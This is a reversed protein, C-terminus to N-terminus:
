ARADVQVAVKAPSPKGKTGKGTVKPARQFTANWAAVDQVGGEDKLEAAIVSRLTEDGAEWVAALIKAGHSDVLAACQGQLGSQWLEARFAAAAEDNCGGGQAMRRLARSAFFNNVLPDQKAADSAAEAAEAADTAMASSTDHAASAIAAHLAQVQARSRDWLENGSGCALEAVLEAGQATRLLAGINGACHALVASSLSGAGSGLLEKRRAEADKKSAGLVMVSTAPKDQDDTDMALSAMPEAATGAAAPAPTGAESAAKVTVTREPPRLLAHAHPPLHKESSTLLSLLVKVGHQSDCM